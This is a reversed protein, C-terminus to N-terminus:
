RMRTESRAATARCRTATAPAGPLTLRYKVNDFFCFGHKALASVTGGSDVHALTGGEM